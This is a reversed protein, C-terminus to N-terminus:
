LLAEFLQDLGFQHTLAPQRGLRPIHKLMREDLCRVRLMHVFLDHLAVDDLVPREGVLSGDADLIQLSDAM